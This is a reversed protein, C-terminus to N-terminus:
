LKAITKSPPPPPSVVVVQPWPLQLLEAGGGLSSSNSPTSARFTMYYGFFSGYVLKIAWLAGASLTAGM